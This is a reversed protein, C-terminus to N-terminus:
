KLGVVGTARTTPLMCVMGRVYWGKVAAEEVHNNICQSHTPHHSTLPAHGRINGGGHGGWGPLGGAVMISSPAKSRLLLFVSTENIIYINTHNESERWVRSTRLQNTLGRGGDRHGPSYSM